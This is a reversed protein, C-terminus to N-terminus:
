GGRGPERFRDSAPVGEVRETVPSEDSYVFTPQVTAPTCSVVTLPSFTLRSQSLWLRPPWCVLKGRRLEARIVRYLKLLSFFQYAFALPQNLREPFRTPVDISQERKM